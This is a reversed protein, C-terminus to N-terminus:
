ICTNVLRLWLFTSSEACANIIAIRFNPTSGSSGFLRTLYRATYKEAPRMASLPLDVRIPYELVPHVGVRHGNDRLLHQVVDVRQPVVGDNGRDHVPLGLEVQHVAGGIEEGLEALNACWVIDRILGIHETCPRLRRTDALRPEVHTLEADMHEVDASLSALPLLPNM